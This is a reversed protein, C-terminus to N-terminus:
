LGKRFAQTQWCILLSESVFSHHFIFILIVARMGLRILSTHKM